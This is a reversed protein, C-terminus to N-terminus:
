GGVPLIFLSTKRRLITGTPRSKEALRMRELQTYKRNVTENMWIILANVGTDTRRTEADNPNFSSFWFIMAITM